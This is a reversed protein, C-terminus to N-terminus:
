IMDVRISLKSFIVNFDSNYRVKKNFDITLLHLLLNCKFM